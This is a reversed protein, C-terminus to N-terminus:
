GMGCFFGAGFFFVLAVPRAAEDFARGASEDGGFGARFRDVLFPGLM